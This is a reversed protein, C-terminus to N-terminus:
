GEVGSVVGAGGGGEDEQYRQLCGSGGCGGVVGRGGGLGTEGGNCRGGCFEGGGGGVGGEVKGGGKGGMGGDGRGGSWTCGEGEDDIVRHITGVSPHGLLWKVCRKALRNLSKQKVHRLRITARLEALKSQTRPAQDV